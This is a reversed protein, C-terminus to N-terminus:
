RNSEPLTGRQGGWRLRGWIIGITFGILTPALWGLGLSAFPVATHYLTLLRQIPALGSITAPTNALMDLIAPLITFAITVKYVTGAYPRQSVTLSLLILALALPYMLM